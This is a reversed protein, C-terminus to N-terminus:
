GICCVNCMFFIERKGPKVGHGVSGNEAIAVGVEAAANNATREHRRFFPTLLCGTCGDANQAALCWVIDFYV